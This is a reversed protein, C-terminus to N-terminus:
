TNPKSKKLKSKPIFITTTLTTVNNIFFIKEKDYNLIHEELRAFNGNEIITFFRENDSKNIFIFYDVNTASKLKDIVFDCYFLELNIHKGDKLLIGGFETTQEIIFITKFKPIKLALHESVNEKYENINSYHNDFIRIFNEKLNTKGAEQTTTVSTTGQSSIENKNIQSNKILDNAQKELQKDAIFINRKYSSGKGAKYLSADVEFHEFMYCIRNNVFYMDPRNFATSHCFKDFIGVGKSKNCFLQLKAQRKSTYNTLIYNKENISM